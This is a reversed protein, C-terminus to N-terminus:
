GIELITLLNLREIPVITIEQRMTDTNSLVPDGVNIKHTLFPTNHKATNQATVTIKFKANSLSDNKSTHLLTTLLLFPHSMTCLSSTPIMDIFFMM